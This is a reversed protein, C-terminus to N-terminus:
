SLIPFQPLVPFPPHRFPLTYLPLCLPAPSSAPKTTQNAPKGQIDNSKKKHRDSQQPLDLAHSVLSQTCFSISPSLLPISHFVTQTPCLPSLLLFPPLPPPQRPPQCPRTRSAVVRGLPSRMGKLQPVPCPVPSRSESTCAIPHCFDRVVQSYTYLPVQLPARTSQDRPCFSCPM